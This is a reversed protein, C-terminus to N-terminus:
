TMNLLLVRPRRWTLVPLGDFLDGKILLRCNFDVLYFWFLIESGATVLECISAPCAGDGALWGAMLSCSPVMNMTFSPWSTGIWTEECTTIVGFMWCGVSANCAGGIGWNMWDGWRSGLGFALACSCFSCGKEECSLIGFYSITLASLGFYFNM